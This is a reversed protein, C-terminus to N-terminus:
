RIKKLFNMYQITDEFGEDLLFLEKEYKRNEGFQNMVEEKCKRMDEVTIANFIRKIMTRFEATDKKPLESFINHQFACQM